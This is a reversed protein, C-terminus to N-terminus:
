KKSQDLFLNSRNFTNSKSNESAKQNLTLVKNFPTTPRKAINPQTAEQQVPGLHESYPLQSRDLQLESQDLKHM